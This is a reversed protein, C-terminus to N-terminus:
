SSPAPVASSAAPDREEAPLGFVHTSLKCMACSGRHPRGVAHSPLPSSQSGALRSRDTGRGLHVASFRFVAESLDEQAVASGPHFLCVRRGDCM